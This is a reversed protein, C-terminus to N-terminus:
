SQRLQVGGWFRREAKTQTTDKSTREALEKAEVTSKELRHKKESDWEVSYLDAPMTCQLYPTLIPRLDKDWGERFKGLSPRVLLHFM